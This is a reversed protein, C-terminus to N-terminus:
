ELHFSISHIWFITNNSSSSKKNLELSLSLDLFLPSFFLFFQFSEQTLFTNGDACNFFLYNMHTTSFQFNCDNTFFPLIWNFFNTLWKNERCLMKLTCKELAHFQCCQMLLDFMQKFFFGKTKNLWQQAEQESFRMQPWDSNPRCTM